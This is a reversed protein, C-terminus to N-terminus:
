RTRQDRQSACCAFVGSVKSSWNKSRNRLLAAPGAAADDGNVKPLLQRIKDAAPPKLSSWFALRFYYNKRSQLHRTEGDAPTLTYLVISVPPAGCFLNFDIPKFPIVKQIQWQIDDLFQSIGWFAFTYTPGVKLEMDSVARIFAPRDDVRKTGFAHFNEDTLDPPEEGEPTIIFQDFAWMPMAFVPKEVEGETKRPDDGVSHYLDGGAVSRLAAVTVGMLRKSASNLPVYEQLECGFRMPETVDEKVRLQLRMEWLRKRGKFHAGYRWKCSKDLDKDHTPRHMPLFCGVSFENEFPWPEASNAELLGDVSPLFTGQLNPGKPWGMPSTSGRSQLRGLGNHVAPLPLTVPPRPAAKGRRCRPRLLVLALAVSVLAAAAVPSSPLEWSLPLPM